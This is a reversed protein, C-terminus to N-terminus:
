QTGQAPYCCQPTVLFVEVTSLDESWDTSACLSCARLSPMLKALGDSFNFRRSYDTKLLNKLNQPVAFPIAVESVAKIAPHSQAPVKAKTAFIQLQPSLEETDEIVSRLHCVHKCTTKKCTTCWIGPTTCVVGFSGSANVCM